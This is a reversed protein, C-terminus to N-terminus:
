KSQAILPIMMYIHDLNNEYILFSILLSIFADVVFSYLYVVFPKLGKSLDHISIPANCEFQFLHVDENMLSIFHQPNQPNM